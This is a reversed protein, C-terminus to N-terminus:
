EAHTAVGTASLECTVAGGSAAELDECGDGECELAVGWVATGNSADTFEIGMTFTQHQVADFGLSSFDEDFEKPPQENNNSPEREKASQTRM